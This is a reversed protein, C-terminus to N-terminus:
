DVMMWQGGALKIRGREKLHSQAIRVSHKWKKGFRRGNIIRDVTDDCLDPHIRQVAAHILPTAKPGDRLVYLIADALIADLSRNGARVRLVVEEMEDLKRDFELRLKHRLGAEAKTRLLRLDKAATAFSQLQALSIASGLEGYTLMDSRITAVAAPENVHVGYEFNRRLGSDTFNGSTVVASRSDFVYVKAHLSPLFRVITQPVAEVLSAIAEVDTAGSLMNDRSLDTLVFLDITQALSRRRLASALRECPGRGIYPSCVLISSATSDLLEDFLHSWPSVIFEAM